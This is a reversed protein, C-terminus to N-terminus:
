LSNHNQSGNTGPRETEAQHPCRKVGPSSGGKIRARRNRGIIVIGILATLMTTSARYPQVINCGGSNEAQARIPAPTATPTSPVGAVAIAFPGDGVPLPLGVVANTVADVVYVRSNPNSAIYLRTGDPTITVPHPGYGGELILPTREMTNSATQLTYVSLDGDGVDAVVYARSSDPSFTLDFVLTNDPSGGLSVPTGSVSNVSGNETDIVWLASVDITIVYVRAGDPTIALRYPNPFPGFNRPALHSTLDFAWVTYNNIDVVYATAGDPTVAIDTPAFGVGTPSALADLVASTKTDIVSIGGDETSTIYARAGDRSLAIASPARGIAIPEGIFQNTATDIVQLTGSQDGATVYLRSGDPSAAIATAAVFLPTTVANTATDIVSLTGDGNAM